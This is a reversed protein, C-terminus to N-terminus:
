PRIAEISLQGPPKPRSAPKAEYVRIDDVDMYGPRSNRFAFWGGDTLPTWGYAASGTNGTDVISVETKGDIRVTIGDEVVRVDFDFWRDPKHLFPSDYTQLITETQFDEYSLESLARYADGGIHRLKCFSRTSRLIALTYTALRRDGAYRKYLADPRVWDLISDDQTPNANFFFLASTRNAARARFRYRVDGRFPKRYWFVTAKDVPGAETTIRLYPNRSVDRVNLRGTGEFLWNPDRVSFNNFNEEYVLQWQQAYLCPIAYFQIILVFIYYKLYNR